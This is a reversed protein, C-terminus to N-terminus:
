RNPQAPDQPTKLQLMLFRIGQGPISGRGGASPARLRLWRAVLSIGPGEKTPCLRWGVGAGAVWM